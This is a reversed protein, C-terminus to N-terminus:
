TPLQDCKWIYSMSHINITIAVVGGVVDVVDAVCYLQQLNIFMELLLSM